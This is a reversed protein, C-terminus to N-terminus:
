DTCYAGPRNALEALFLCLCSQAILLQLSAPVVDLLAEEEGAKGAIRSARSAHNKEVAPWCRIKLNGLEAKQTSSTTNFLAFM